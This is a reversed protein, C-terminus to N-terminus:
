SQLTLLHQFSLSFLFGFQQVSVYIAWVEHMHLMDREEDSTKEQVSNKCAVCSYIFLSNTTERCLYKWVTQNCLNKYESFFKVNSAHALAGYAYCHSNAHFFCVVKLGYFKVKILIVYLRFAM